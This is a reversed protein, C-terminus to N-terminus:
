HKSKKTYSKKKIKLGTQKAAREFPTEYHQSFGTAYSQKFPAKMNATSPNKYATHFPITYGSSEKKNSDAMAQFGCLMLIFLVLVRSMVLGM